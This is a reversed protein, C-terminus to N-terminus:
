DEKLITGTNIGNIINDAWGSDQINIVWVPIKNERFIAFAATDMVKIDRSIAENYTLEPIFKADSFKEPDKDYIGNVKTGKIVCDLGLESARLAAATDTSFFPHGTGAAFIVVNGSALFDRARERNYLDAIPPMGVASLIKVPINLNALAAKVALANMVTGLMGMSDIIVRDLGYDLADRGRLMNGGGIVLSLEFGADRIKALNEAFDQVVGFDFGSHKDGALVEGSLKLLIRRFRPM